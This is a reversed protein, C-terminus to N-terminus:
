DIGSGLDAAIGLTSQTTPQLNFRLRGRLTEERGTENTYQKPPQRM